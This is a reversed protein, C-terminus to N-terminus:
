ETTIVQPQWAPSNTRKAVARDRHEAALESESSRRVGHPTLRDTLADYLTVNVQEVLNAGPIFDEAAATSLFQDPDDIHFFAVLRGKPRKGVIQGIRYYRALWGRRIGATTMMRPFLTRCEATLAEDARDSPTMQVYLAHRAATQPRPDSDEFAIPFYYCVIPGHMDAADNIVMRDTGAADAHSQSLTATDSVEYFALYRHEAPTGFGPQVAHQLFRQASISGDMRMVDRIHVNSYWNNFEEERGSTPNMQVILFSQM